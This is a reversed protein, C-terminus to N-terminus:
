PTRNAIQGIRPDFSDDIKRVFAFDKKYDIPFFRMARGGSEGTSAGANDFDLAVKTVQDILEPQLNYVHGITLRPIVQSEYIVQFDGKSLSGDALMSEIKDASLAAVEFKGEVLGRISRKQGFSFHIRYDVGPRLGAEQSLIAIASRYGTISDPRTCTLRHGNVEALSRINTKAGTAIVLHNGSAGAETGLVAVPVFGANNVLYPTDAAHLAVIHIKGAKVEAVEDASNRYPQCVVQKGTAESLRAQFGDWDVREGDDDDGEYHAIVLTEPDILKDPDNPSDAVLGGDKDVYEPALHKSSAQTLGHQAVLREQAARLSAMDQLARYGVFAVVALAAALACYLATRVLKETPGSVWPKAPLSPNDTSRSSESM